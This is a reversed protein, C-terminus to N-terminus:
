QYKWRNNISDVWGGSKPAQPERENNLPKFVGGGEKSEQTRYKMDGFDVTVAATGKEWVRKRQNDDINARWQDYHARDRGGGSNGWGPAFFTEGGAEFRREFRGTQVHRGALGGSANDTAYNSVNSGELVTKLNNEYFERLKPDNLAGPKYGAYYGGQGVTRAQYALTTGTMAARNMMTEIVAINGQKNSGQEGASIALVKDRLEPNGALEKAFRSRDIVGAETSAPQSEGEYKSSRPIGTGRQPRFGGGSAQMPGGWRQLGAGGMGGTAGTPAEIRLLSDKISTLLEINEDGLRQQEIAAASGKDPVDGAAAQGLALADSEGAEKRETVQKESTGRFQKWKEIVWDGWKMIDEFLAYLEKVETITTRVDKELLDFQNKFWEAVPHKKNALEKGGSIEEYWRNLKELAHAGFVTWEADLNELLEKQNDVYKQAIEASVKLVEGVKKEYESLNLLVSQPVGLMQALYYQVQPSQTKFVEIIKHIQKNVDTESMLDRALKVGGPGMKELEQFLQSGERMAALQQLKNSMSAIYGDATKAEVGMRSMAGRMTEIGEATIRTDQAFMELQVRTTALETLSKTLQTIASYAGGVGLITKGIDLIRNSLNQVDRLANRSSEALRDVSQRLKDTEQASGEMGERAAKNLERLGLAIQKLGPTISDRLAIELEEQRTPM